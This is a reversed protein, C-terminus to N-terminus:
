LVQLSTDLGSRCTPGVSSPRRGKSHHAPVPVLMPMPLNVVRIEEPEREGKFPIGV